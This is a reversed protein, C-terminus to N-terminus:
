VRGRPLPPCVFGCPHAHRQPAWSPGLGGQGSPTPWDTNRSPLVGQGSERGGRRLVVCHGPGSPQVNGEFSKDPTHSSPCHGPSRLAGTFPPPPRVSTHTHPQPLRTPGLTKGPSPAGQLGCHLQVGRLQERHKAALPSPPPPTLHRPLVRLGGLLPARLVLESSLLRRGPWPSLSMASSPKGLFSVKLGFASPTNPLPCRPCPTRPPCPLVSM